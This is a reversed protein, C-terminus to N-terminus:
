RGTELETPNCGSETTCLTEWCSDDVSGARAEARGAAGLRRVTERNLVLKRTTQM